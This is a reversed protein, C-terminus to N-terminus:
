DSVVQLLCHDSIDIRDNALAAFNTIPTFPKGSFLRYVLQLRRRKSQLMGRTIQWWIYQWDKWMLLRWIGWRIYFIEKLCLGHQRSIEAPQWDVSQSNLGLNLWYKNHSKLFTLTIPSKLWHALFRHPFANLKQFSIYTFYQHTSALICIPLPVLRWSKVLM